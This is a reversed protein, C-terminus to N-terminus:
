LTFSGIIEGLANLDAQNQASSQSVSQMAEKIKDLSSQMSSMSGTIQDTVKNLITMEKVIQEGGSLMEKSADQVVTTTDNINKMADMVQQNGEAQETMANMLLNEQDRVTQALTYISDFGNAVEKTNDSVQKISTFLNKLNDRIVKGQKSSQEALKRIEDAVVSFGKGVEGAHASEIAANMALLNTQSAITSIITSAEMLSSSQKIIDEATKVAGQVSQRGADSAKDLSNVAEKNRELIQQMSRINAVMEGVAASSENVSTAQVKVSENLEKIRSMIQNASANADQVGATQNEMENNVTSINKTIELVSKMAGDMSVSLDEATKNSVVISNKFGTLVNRTTDSFSNLDNVLDGLECRLIVPIQNRTYDRNRLSNALNVISNMNLKVDQINVYFDIVEMFISIIGIPLIRLIFSTNTLGRNAPIFFASLLVLVIGLLAFVAITVTRAVLSMTQFESRYPLWDLSHEISQMFLIYTFLAFVFTIGLTLTFDFALPSEGGFAQYSLGRAHYRASYLFPVILYCLVPFAISIKEFLNVKSNMDRNGEESAKYEDIQKKYWKFTAFPLIIQIALLIYLVPDALTQMYESFTCAGLAWAIVGFLLSPLLYSIVLLPLTTKAVEHKTETFEMFDIDEMEAIDSM